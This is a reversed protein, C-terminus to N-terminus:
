VDCIVREIKGSSNSDGLGSDEFGTPADGRNKSMDRRSDLTAPETDTTIVICILGLGVTTFCKQLKTAVGFFRVSPGVGLM